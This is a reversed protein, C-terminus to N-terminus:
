LAAVKSITIALIPIESTEIGIPNEIASRCEVKM